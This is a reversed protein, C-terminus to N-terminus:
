IGRLVRGKAHRRPLSPPISFITHAMPNQQGGSLALEAQNLLTRGDAAVGSARAIGIRLVIAVSIGDGLDYNGGCERLLTEALRSIGAADCRLTDNVLAFREGGFHAIFEQSAALRLRAAIQGLLDDCRQTGVSANLM